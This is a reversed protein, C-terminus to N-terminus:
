FIGANCWNKLEYDHSFFLKEVLIYVPCIFKHMVLNIMIFNIICAFCVRIKDCIM